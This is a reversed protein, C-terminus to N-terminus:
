EKAKLLGTLTTPEDGFTITIIDKGARLNRRIGTIQLDKTVGWKKNECTVYDGLAYTMANDASLKGEFGNTKPYKALKEAGFVELQAQVEAETLDSKSIGTASAYMEYRDLGEGTGVGQTIRDDDTGSGALIYTAYNSSDEYYRQSLINGFEPSFLSPSSGTTTRDTGSWVDFCLCPVTLDLRLRFGLGYAGALDGIVKGVKSYEMQYSISDTVTSTDTGLVLNPIIRDSDTASICNEDVLTRMINSPTDSLISRNLVIRQNLIRSAMYGKATITEMGTDSIEKTLRTIIGPESEETNYLFYGLSLIDATDEDYVFSVSFSGFDSLKMNWDLSTFNQLIGLLALDQDLVFIEM